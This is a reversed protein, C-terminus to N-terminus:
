LPFDAGVFAGLMAGTVGAITRDDARVDFGRVM